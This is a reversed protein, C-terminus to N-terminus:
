ESFISFMSWILFANIFFSTTHIWREGGGNDVLWAATVFIPPLSHLMMTSASITFGNRSPLWAAIGIIRQLDNM